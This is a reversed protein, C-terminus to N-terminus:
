SKPASRRRRAKAKRKTTRKKADAKSMVLSEAEEIASDLSQLRRQAEDLQGQWIRRRVELMRVPDSGDILRVLEGVRGANWSDIRLGSKEQFAKVTKLLTEYPVRHRDAVAQRQDRAQELTARRGAEYGDKFSKDLKTQPLGAKDRVNRLVSAIFGRDLPAPELKPAKVKVILKSGKPVLLGWTAPLEGPKILKADGLVLYWKNCYRYIGEEQKEPHKLEQLLDSRRSKFEFGHLVLGRSKWCNLALADAYRETRSWGTSNRVQPLLVWERDPLLVRLAQFIQEESWSM